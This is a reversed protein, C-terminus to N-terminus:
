FRQAGDQPYSDVVCTVPDIVDWKVVEDGNARTLRYTDKRYWLAISVRNQKIKVEEKVTKTSSKQESSSRKVRLSSSITTSVKASAGAYSFGAEASVSISLKEEVENANHSVLGVETTLTETFEAKGTYEKYGTRTWSSHRELFYYPTERAKWGPDQSGDHVVFFPVAVTGLLKTPTREAPAQYGTLRDIDGYDPREPVPRAAAVEPFRAMVVPKWETFGDSHDVDMNVKFGAEGGRIHLYTNRQMNKLHGYGDSTPVFQWKYTELGMDHPSSALRADKGPEGWGDAYLLGGSNRNVIWWWSGDDDAPFFLWQHDIDDPATGGDDQNLWTDNCRHLRLHSARNEFAYAVGPELKTM